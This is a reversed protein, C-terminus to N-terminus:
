DVVPMKVYDNIAGYGTAKCTLIKEDCKINNKRLWRVVTPIVEPDCGLWKNCYGHIQIVVGNKMEIAYFPIDPESKRRIFFLNTNGLSHSSVYGGICIRQKSGETVIETGNNPLRIIYNDDEYEYKKRNEDIKIRKEEEKKQREAYGLNWMAMREQDQARKLEDIADHTRVVDSYSDFYWDVEPATGANLRLYQNMTDRIMSFICHQQKDNLRIANKLFRKNDLGLQEIYGQLGYAQSRIQGFANYFKDFTANDLHSLDNGFWARMDGLASGHYWYRNRSSNNSVCRDMQYKTMGVKRLLNTEKENYYEGFEHRLDAHPTSSNAIRNALETYGLKMFKEVEPFRLAVM